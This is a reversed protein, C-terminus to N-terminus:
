VFAKLGTELAEVARALMSLPTDPRRWCITVDGRTLGVDLRVDFRLTLECVSDVDLRAPHEVPRIAVELRLDPYLEWLTQTIPLLHQVKTTHDDM